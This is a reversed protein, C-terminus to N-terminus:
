KDQKPSPVQAQFRTSATKQCIKWTWHEKNKYRFSLFHFLKLYVITYTNHTIIGRFSVIAWPDNRHRQALECLLTILVLTLFLSPVIGACEIGIGIGIGSVTTLNWNRNRNWYLITDPFNTISEIGIGIGDLKFLSRNRNWNRNRFRFQGM